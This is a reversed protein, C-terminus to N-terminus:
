STWFIWLSRASSPHLYARKRFRILDIFAPIRTKWVMRNVDGDRSRLMLRMSEEKIELIGEQASAAVKNWDDAEQTPDTAKSQYSDAECALSMQDFVRNSIMLERMYEVLAPKLNFKALEREGGKINKWDRLYRQFLIRVDDVIIPNAKARTFAVNMREENNLFSLNKTVIIDLIIVENERSQFDDITVLTALVSPCFGWGEVRSQRDSPTASTQNKTSSVRRDDHHQRSERSHSTLRPGPIHSRRQCEHPQLQVRYQWESLNLNKGVM